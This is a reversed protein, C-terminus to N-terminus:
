RDLYHAAQEQQKPTLQPYAMAITVEEQEENTIETM